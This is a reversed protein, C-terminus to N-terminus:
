CGLAKSGKQLAEVPLSEGRALQGWGAQRPLCVGALALRLQGGVVLLCGGLDALRVQGLSVFHKRLELPAARMAISSVTHAAAAAAFAVPYLCAPSIQRKIFLNVLQLEHASINLRDATIHATYQVRSDHASNSDQQM